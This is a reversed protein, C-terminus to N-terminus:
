DASRPDCGRANKDEESLGLAKTCHAKVHLEMGSPLFHVYPTINNLGNQLGQDMNQPGNFVASASQAHLGGALLLFLGGWILVSPLTSKAM